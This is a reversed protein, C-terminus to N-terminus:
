EGAPGIRKSELYPCAEDEGGYDDVAEQTWRVAFVIKSHYHGPHQPPQQQGKGKNEEGPQPAPNARQSGCTVRHLPHESM